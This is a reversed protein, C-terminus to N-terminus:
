TILYKRNSAGRLAWFEEVDDGQAIERERVV